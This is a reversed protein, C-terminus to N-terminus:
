GDGRSSTTANKDVRHPELKCARSVVFRNRNILRYVGWTASRLVPLGLIIGLPRTWGMRRLLDIYVYAGSLLTGDALILRIDDVIEEAPLKVTDAVWPSQLPAVAIGVKALHDTIKSVWWSCFGCGGDYLLYGRADTQPFAATSCTPSFRQYTFVEVSSGRAVFTSHPTKAFTERFAEPYLEAIDGTVTAVKTQWYSWPEHQVRYESTTGDKQKTYGWYHELIFHEISGDRLSHLGGETTARVSVTQTGVQTEYSLTGGSETQFQAFSHSMPRAEYPENYLVRATAAILASPVVEKVFVVGRRVEDGVTRRVYFRLNLEEFDTVPVTPIVGFLKMREFNFAIVSMLAKNDYLDLETGMPLLPLLVSPDVEYNIVILNRWSASLFPLAM